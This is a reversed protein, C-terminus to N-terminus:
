HRLSSVMILPTLLFDNHVPSVNSAAFSIFIDRGLNKMNIDSKNGSPIQIKKELVHSKIKHSM